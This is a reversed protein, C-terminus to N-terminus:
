KLKWNRNSMQNQKTKWISIVEEPNMSIQHAINKNSNETKRYGESEDFSMNSNSSFVTEANRSDCKRIRINNNM